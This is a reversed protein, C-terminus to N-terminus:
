EEGDERPPIPTYGGIAEQGEDTTVRILGAELDISQGPRLREVVEGDAAVDLIGQSCAIRYLRPSQGRYITQWSSDTSVGGAVHIWGAESLGPLPRKRTSPKKDHIVKVHTFMSGDRMPRSAKSETPNDDTDAIRLDPAKGKSRPDDQRRGGEVLEVAVPDSEPMPFGEGLIQVDFDVESEMSELAQRVGEALADRSTKDGMDADDLADLVQDIVDSWRDDESM